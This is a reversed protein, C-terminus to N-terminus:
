EMLAMIEKKGSAHCADELGDEQINSKRGRKRRVGTVTIKELAVAEGKGM